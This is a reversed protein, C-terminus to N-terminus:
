RSILSQPPICLSSSLSPQFHTLRPFFLSIYPISRFHDIDLDDLHNNQVAEKITEFNSGYRRQLFVRSLNRGIHVNRM